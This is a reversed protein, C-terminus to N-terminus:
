YFTVAKEYYELAYNSKEQNEYLVGIHSLTHAWGISKKGIKEYIKLAKYYYL